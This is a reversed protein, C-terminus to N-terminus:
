VIIYDDTEIVGDVAEDFLKIKYGHEILRNYSNTHAFTFTNVKSYTGTTLTFEAIPVYLKTNDSMRTRQWEDGIVTGDSMTGSFVTEGNGSDYYGVINNTTKDPNYIDGNVVLKISKPFIETKDVKTDISANLLNVQSNFTSINVKSALTSSLDTETVLKESATDDQGTGGVRVEKAFWAVGKWNVTAANSRNTDSNGNGIIDAYVNNTDEVNYRGRATQNNGSAITGVGSAHAQTGNAITKYGETFSYSGNAETDAGSAFSTAGNAKTRAGIAFAVQGNAQTTDGAAFSENGNAQTKYNRAFSREGRAVTKHGGADSAYGLAKAENNQAHAVLGAVTKYGEAHQSFFNLSDVVEFNGITGGAVILAMAISNPENSITNKNYDLDLQTQIGTLAGEGSHTQLVVYSGADDTDMETIFGRYLRDAEGNADFGFIGFGQYPETATIGTISDLYVKITQIQKTYDGNKYTKYSDTDVSLIRFGKITGSTGNGELLGTNINTTEFLALKKEDEESSGGTAYPLDNWNQTGNGIKFKGTDEYGIENKLLVPNNSVWREATDVKSQIRVNITDQAM